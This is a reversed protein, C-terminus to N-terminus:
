IKEDAVDTSDDQMLELDAAEAIGIARDIAAEERAVRERQSDYSSDGDLSGSKTTSSEDVNKANHIIQEMDPPMGIFVEERPRKKSTSVENGDVNDYTTSSEPTARSSVDDVTKTRSSLRVSPPAESESPEQTHSYSDPVEPEGDMDSDPVPKRLLSSCDKLNSSSGYSAKNSSHNTKSGSSFADRGTGSKSRKKAKRRSWRARM